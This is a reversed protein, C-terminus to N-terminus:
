FFITLFFHFIFILCIYVYTKGTGTQGYAFITCNMGDLVETVMPAVVEDYITEQNVEPGFVQDVKYIKAEHSSKSADEILIETPSSPLTQVVVHSKAKIERDTRGRCRVVVKINSGPDSHTNQSFSNQYSSGRTDTPINDSRDNPHKLDSVIPLDDHALSSSSSSSPASYLRASRKNTPIPHAATNPRTSKRNHRSNTTNELPASGQRSRGPRTLRSSSRVQAM